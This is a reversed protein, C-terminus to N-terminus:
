CNWIVLHAILSFPQCHCVKRFLALTLSELALNRQVLAEASLNDTPALLLQTYTELMKCKTQEHAAKTQEHAAEHNIRVAEIKKDALSQQVEAMKERKGIKQVQKLSSTLNKVLILWLMM